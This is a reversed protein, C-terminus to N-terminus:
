IFVKNYLTLRFVKSVASCLLSEQVRHVHVFNEKCKNKLFLIFPLVCETIYIFKGFLHQSM